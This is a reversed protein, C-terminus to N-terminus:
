EDNSGKARRELRMIHSVFNRPTMHAPLHKSKYVGGVWVVEPVISFLKKYIRQFRTVTEPNMSIGTSIASQCDGGGYM